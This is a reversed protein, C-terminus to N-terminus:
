HKISIRATNSAVGNVTVTVLLEGASLNEPLRVILQQFPFISYFAVVELPLVFQNQQVDVATITISPFTQHIRLDDVFLSIRTRHDSSFNM